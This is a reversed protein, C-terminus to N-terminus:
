KNQEFKVVEGTEKQLKRRQERNLAQKELLEKEAKRKETGARLYEAVAKMTRDEETEIKEFEVGTKEAIAEILPAYNSCFENVTNLIQYLFNVASGYFNMRIRERREELSPMKYNEDNSQNNADYNKAVYDLMEEYEKDSINVNKSMISGLIDNLSYKKEEKEM